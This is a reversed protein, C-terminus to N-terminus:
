PGPSEIEDSDIFYHYTFYKYKLITTCMWRLFSGGTLHVKWKIIKFINHTLFYKLIFWVSMHFNIGASNGDSYCICKYSDKTHFFFIRCSLFSGLLSWTIEKLWNCHIIASRKIKHKNAGFLVIYYYMNYSKNIKLPLYGKNFM